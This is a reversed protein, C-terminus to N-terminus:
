ACEWGITGAASTTACAAGPGRRQRRGARGRAGDNDFDGVAMGRAALDKSFIPGSQTSVNECKRRTRFLLMPEPLRVGSHAERGPTPIATAIMLDLEGDNDYDFFKVGWGSLLMTAAGIGAPIALDDFNMDKHNRYLSFMEHDVNTVFLDM